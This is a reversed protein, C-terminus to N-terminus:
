RNIVTSEDAIQFSVRFLGPFLKMKRSVTRYLMAQLFTKYLGYVSQEYVYLQFLVIYGFGQLVTLFVFGCCM